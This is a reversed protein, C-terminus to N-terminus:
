ANTYRIRQINRAALYVNLRETHPKNIVRLSYVPLVILFNETREINVWNKGRQM